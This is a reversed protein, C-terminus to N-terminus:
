GHGADAGFGPDLGLVRGAAARRGAANVDPASHLPSKADLLGSGM